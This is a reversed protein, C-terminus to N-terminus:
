GRKGKKSIRDKMAENFKAELDNYKHNLLALAATQVGALRGYNVMKTGNGDEIVAQSGLKSKEFEQAMPSIYRGEGHEKNKYEYSYIGLNDLFEQLEGKASAIETKANVDSVAKADYQPSYFAGPQTAYMPNVAPNYQGNFAQEWQQSTQPQNQPNLWPKPQQFQPQGNVGGAGGSPIGGSQLPMAGQQAQNMALTNQGINAQNQQMGSSAQLPGTNQVNSPQAQSQQPAQNFGRFGGQAGQGLQGPANMAANNNSAGAQGLASLYNSVSQAGGRSAQGAQQTPSQSGDPIFRGQSDFAM